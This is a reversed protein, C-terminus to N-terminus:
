INDFANKQFSLIQLGIKKTDIDKVSPIDKMWNVANTDSMSKWMNGMLDNMTDQM